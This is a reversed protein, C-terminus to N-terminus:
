LLVDFSHNKDQIDDKWDPTDVPDFTHQMASDELTDIPFYGYDEKPAFGLDDVELTAKPEHIELSSVEDTDIIDPPPSIQRLESTKSSHGRKDSKKETKSSSLLSDNGGSKFRVTWQRLEMFNNKMFPYLNILEGASDAGTPITEYGMAQFSGNISSKCKSMLLRLQHTNIAIGEHLWITGCVLSRNKDESDGRIVYNKISTIIERFTQISKNRRNKCNPSNLAKRLQHYAEKDTESLIEFFRPLKDSYDKKGM